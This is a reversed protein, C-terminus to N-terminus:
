KQVSSLSEGLKKRLGVAATDIAKLVHAKDAAQQQAEALVEGSNCDVARVGIVYQNGLGVISDTLMATSNTRLCIERAVDETLRESGSRNMLKLTRNIKADSLVNLYPSQALDISLAQKLTDDFVPDGTKNDFDAIVITDKETLVTRTHVHRYVVAGILMLLVAALALVLWRWLIRLRAEHKAPAVATGALAQAEPGAIAYDPAAAGAIRAPMAKAGSVLAKMRGSWEGSKSQVVRPGPAAITKSVVPVLFRYGHRPLTEIYVPKDADDGLVARIQKICKNVGHEFDVHTGESWLQTQIEERTVMQGAHAALMALLKFPQPPLRVLAGSKRLEETDLNLEFVGFRLLEQTASLFEGESQRHPRM